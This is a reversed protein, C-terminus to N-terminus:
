AFFKGFDIGIENGFVSISMRKGITVGCGAVHADLSGNRIGAGTEVGVGLKLDFVSADAKFLNLEAGAGAYTGFKYEGIQIYEVSAGAYASFVDASVQEVPRGKSQVTHMFSARADASTPTLTM